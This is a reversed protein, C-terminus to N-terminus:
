RGSPDPHLCIAQPTSEHDRMIDMLGGTEAPPARLLERAALRAARRPPALEALDSEYHNTHPGPGDLVALQEGTTEVTFADGGAFAFVHGYGGARTPIGARTVADHRDISELASRSVFVRPVGVSDDSANLSGIGQAGGHSNM